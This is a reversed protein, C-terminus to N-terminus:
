AGARRFVYFHSGCFLLVTYTIMGLLQPLYIGLETVQGAVSLVLLNAAYCLAVLAAYPAITAGYSRRDQFTWGKNFFFGVLFGTAFGAANALVPRDPAFHLVAAIMAFGAASNLLGVLAYRFANRAIRKM